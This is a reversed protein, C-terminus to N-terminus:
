SPWSPHTFLNRLADRSLTPECSGTIEIDDVSGIVQNFRKITGDPYLHAYSCRGNEFDDLTAIAGGVGPGDVFVYDKDQFKITLM